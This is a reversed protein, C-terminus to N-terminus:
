QIASYKLGVCKTEATSNNPYIYIDYEITNSNTTEYKKFNSFLNNAKKTDSDSYISFTVGKPVIIALSSNGPISYITNENQTTSILLNGSMSDKLSTSPVYEGDADVLTNTSFNWVVGNLTMVKHAYYFNITLTSSNDSGAAITKDTVLEGINNKAGTVTAASYESTTYFTFTNRTTQITNNTYSTNSGEVVTDNCYLTVTNETCGAAVKGNTTENVTNFTADTYYNKDASEYYGDKYGLTFTVTGLATGVEKNGSGSAFSLTATPNVATIGITQMLIRKLISTITDETTLNTGSELFGVKINTTFDETLKCDHSIEPLNALANAIETDTYTNATTVAGEVATEITSNIETKAETIATEITEDTYTKASNLADTAKGDAYTQLDSTATEIATEIEEDAYTKASDLTETAKSDVYTKVDFATTLGDNEETAEELAVTKTTVNLTKTLNEEDTDITIHVYDSEETGSEIEYVVASSTLESVDVKIPEDTYSLTFVLYTKNDDETTLEVGTLHIDEVPETPVDSIESHLQRVFLNSEGNIFFPIQNNTDRVTSNNYLVEYAGNKTSDEDAVVFLISGGIATSSDSTVYNILDAYTEYVTGGVIPFRGTPTYTLPSGVISSGLHKYESM